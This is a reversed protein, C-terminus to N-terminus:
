DTAAHKDRPRCNKGRYFGLCYAVAASGIAAQLGFLFTEIEGSPPEWFPKFWPKYDPALSEIAATAKDDAGSFIEEGHVKPRVTLLPYLALLIIGLLLLINQKKM